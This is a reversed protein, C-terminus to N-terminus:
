AKGKQQRQQDDLELLRAKAAPITPFTAKGQGIAMSATLLGPVSVICARHARYRRITGAVKDGRMVVVCDLKMPRFTLRDM